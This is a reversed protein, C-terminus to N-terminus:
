ESTAGRAGALAKSAFTSRLDYIRAPRAIGSAEVAPNWVRRRFNNLNLPGGEPAAFMLSTELRAPLRELANLARCTLPVERWSGNTKTGRVSLVRRVRDVDRREFKVWEHPRPRTAAALPVMPGYDPGLEAELADLEALTYVRIPRPKPAPGHTFLVLLPDLVRPKRL